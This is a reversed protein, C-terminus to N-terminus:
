AEAIKVRMRQFGLLIITGLIIMGAVIYIAYSTSPDIEKKWEAIKGEISARNAPTLMGSSILVPMWEPVVSKFYVDDAFDGYIKESEEKSKAAASKIENDIYKNIVESFQEGNSYSPMVIGKDKFLNGIRGWIEADMENDWANFLSDIGTIESQNEKRNLYVEGLRPGIQKWVKNFDHYQDKMEAFDTPTLSTVKVFEINDAITREINYFLNSKRIKSIFSQKEARNLDAPSKIFDVLLSDVLDRVLLDRQKVNSRLQSVLKNLKLIEKENKASIKNLENIQILLGENIRNIEQLNTKMTEVQLTLDSIQTFDKKRVALNTELKNFSSNFDDPYLAKDLIIKSDIFESRFKEIKEEIESCEAFSSANRISLEIIRCNNKFNQTM